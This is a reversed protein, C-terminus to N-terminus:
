PSDAYAIFGEYRCNDVVTRITEADQGDFVTVVADSGDIDARYVHYGAINSRPNYMQMKYSRNHEGLSEDLARAYDIPDDASYICGNLDASDGWIYGSNNDILIYRPM